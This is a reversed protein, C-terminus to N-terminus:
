IVNKLSFLELESGVMSFYIIYEDDIAIYTLPTWGKPMLAVSISSEITCITCNLKIQPAVADTIKWSNKNLIRRFIQCLSTGIIKKCTKAYIFILCKFPPKGVRM